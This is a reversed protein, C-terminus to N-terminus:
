EKVGFGRMNSFIHPFFIEFIQGGFYDRIKELRDAQRAVGTLCETSHKV